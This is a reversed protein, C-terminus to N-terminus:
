ISSSFFFGCQERHLALNLIILLCTPKLLNILSSRAPSHTHTHIHTHTNAHARTRILSAGVERCGRPQGEGRWGGRTDALLLLLLRLQPWLSGTGPDCSVGPNDSCSLGRGGAKGEEKSMLFGPVQGSLSLSPPASPTIAPPLPQWEVLWV